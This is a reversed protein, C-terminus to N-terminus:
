ARKRAALKHSSFPKHSDLGTLTLVRNISSFELQLENLKSMVTHDVLKVESFDITVNKNINLGRTELHKRLALWNSFVASHNLKILTENKNEAVDINSIFLSRFPAGHILHIIAELAIGVAVGILLDTALVAMLTVVFVVLQESGIRYIHAFEKPSALRCGTYVLMAGLAALPIQHLLGPLSAVFLLLFIGHFMNSFRTKAGNDINARSRVIESIMPLGGILASLTNGVGIAMLDKNMNSKRKWPDMLDIAKAGEIAPVPTFINKNIIKFM